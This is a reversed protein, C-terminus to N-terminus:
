VGELRDIVLGNYVNEVLSVAFFTDPDVSVNSFIANGNIDSITSAVLKKSERSYLGVFLGGTLVNQVKTQLTISGNGLYQAISTNLQIFGEYDLVMNALGDPAGTSGMPDSLGDPQYLVTSTVILHAM